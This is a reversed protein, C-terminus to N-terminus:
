VCRSTYLLCLNEHNPEPLLVAHYEHGPALRLLHKWDTTLAGSIPLMDDSDPNPDLYLIAARPVTRQIDEILAQADTLEGFILYVEKSRRVRMRLRMDNFFRRFLAQAVTRITYISACVFIVVYQLQTFEELGMQFGMIM